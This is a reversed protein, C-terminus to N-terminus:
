EWRLRPFRRRHGHHDDRGRRLSKRRARYLVVPWRLPTPNGQSWGCHFRRQRTTRRHRPRIMRGPPSAVVCCWCCVRHSGDCRADRGLAGAPCEQGAVHMAFSGQLSRPAVLAEVARGRNPTLRKQQGLYADYRERGRQSPTSSFGAIFALRPRKADAHSTGKLSKKTPQGDVRYRWCWYNGRKEPQGETIGM